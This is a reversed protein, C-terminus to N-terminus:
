MRIPMIIKFETKKNNSFLEIKGAEKEVIDKVISLGYGHNGKDDKKTSFGEEFIKTIIGKDIEPGNNEIKMIIKNFEYLTRITIIGRGDMATVSNTIINSIVRQLEVEELPFEEIKAQEDIVINIDKTSISNVITAIISDSRNSVRVQDTISNHGDIIDKLLEGLRDHRKMLHLAYLYSIQSGYDHKIKKLELVKEELAINLDHIEKAKKESNAFHITIAVLFASLAFFIINLFIPNNEGQIIISFSGIFDLILSLILFSITSLNRSRIVKYIKNISDLNRLIIFAMIFQPAYILLIQLIQVYEEKNILMNLTMFVNSFILSNFAIAFYIITHGVTIGLIDKRFLCYPIILSICHTILINLSSNGIFKYSIVFGLCTVITYLILEKNDKKYEDELCYNITAIIMISQVLSNIIDVINIIM